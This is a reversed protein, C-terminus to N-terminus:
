RRSKNGSKVKRAPKKPPPEEEEEDDDEDDDEDEIRKTKPRNRPEEEEEEDDGSDPVLSQALEQLDYTEYGKVNFKEKEEPDLMYTTNIDAGKRTITYDRDMVTGSKKERLLLTDVIGTPLKLAIVKDEDHLYANAITKKSPRNGAECGPCDDADCAFFGGYDKLYHEYYGFWEDMETLFRVTIESTKHGEKPPPVSYITREAGEKSKERDEELAKASGYYGPGKVKVKKPM